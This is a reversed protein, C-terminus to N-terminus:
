LQWNIPTKQHDQLYNNTRSFPKSDFFGNYASLPSPHASSIVRHQTSDIFSGKKQAYAGWLIFVLNNHFGALRQIVQDTFEEWGQNRHSAAQHATVTLVSNLLLVGQQAWLELNGKGTNDIGVDNRLEKHINVLSPPPPVDKQVSFSLGHAQGSGHYPDQGLIVVKVQALPTKWFAHFVQDVPPYVTAGQKKQQQLFVRLKQMYDSGFCDHVLALWGPELDIVNM